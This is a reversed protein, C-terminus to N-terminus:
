KEQQSQYFVMSHDIKAREVHKSAPVPFHCFGTCELCETLPQVIQSKLMHLLLISPAREIKEALLM